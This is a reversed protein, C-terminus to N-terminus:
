APLITRGSTILLEEVLSSSQAVALKAKLDAIEKHLQDNAAALDASKKQLSSIVRDREDLLKRVNEDSVSITRQQRVPPNAAAAAYTEQCAEEYLTMLAPNTRLAQRDFGADEAVKGVWVEGDRKIPLYQGQARLKAWYAKFNEVNLKAKQQGNM